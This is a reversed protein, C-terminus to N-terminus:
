AYKQIYKTIRRSKYINLNLSKALEWNMNRLNDFYEEGDLYIKDLVARELGATFVTGTETLGTPNLLIDSKIKRYSYKQGDIKVTESRNSVSFITTYVQFVVGEAQLVSYLSIYSPSRLKNALEFKNYNKDLAYIGKALRVLEGKKVFYSIASTLNKDANKGTIRAIESFTFVTQKKQNGRLLTKIM